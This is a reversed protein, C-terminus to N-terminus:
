MLSSVFLFCCIVFQFLLHMSLSIDYYLDRWCLFLWAAHMIFQKSCVFWNLHFTSIFCYACCIWYFFNFFLYVLIYYIFYLSRLMIIQYKFYRSWSSYPGVLVKKIYIFITFVQGMIVTSHHWKHNPFWFHNLLFIQDIIVTTGSIPYLFHNLLFIQDIIVTTGSIPYWFYFQYLHSDM